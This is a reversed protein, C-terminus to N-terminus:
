PRNRRWSQRRAKVDTFSSSLGIAAVAVVVYVAAAYTAQLPLRKLLLLIGTFLLGLLLLARRRRGVFFITTEVLLFATPVLAQDLDYPQLRPNCLLAMVFIAAVAQGESIGPWGRRRVLWLGGALSGALVLHVAYPLGHPLAPHRHVANFTTAFVGYGVDHRVLLQYRVADVYARFETADLVRTALNVLLVAGATMLSALWQGDELLLPLLLFLLFPFKILGVLGLVIYFTRWDQRRIGPMGALLILAYLLNALNGSFYANQAMSAPSMAFLLVALAPTLWYSRLYAAAFIVPCGVTALLNLFLFIQWTVAGHLFRYMFAGAHLFLAPYVFVFPRDSRYADGHALSEQFASAYTRADWFAPANPHTVVHRLLFVSVLFISIAVALFVSSRAPRDQRLSPHDSDIKLLVPM